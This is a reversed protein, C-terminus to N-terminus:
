GTACCACSILLLERRGAPLAVQGAPPRGARYPGDTRAQSGGGQTRRDRVHPPDPTEQGRAARIAAPRREALRSRCAQATSRGSVVRLAVKGPWQDGAPG